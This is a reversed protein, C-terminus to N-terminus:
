GPHPRWSITLNGDVGSDSTSIGDPCFIALKSIPNVVAANGGRWVFKSTAGSSVTVTAVSANTSGLIGDLVAPGTTVTVAENMDVITTTNLQSMGLISRTPTYFVTAFGVIAGSVPTRFVMGNPCFVHADDVPNYQTNNAMTQLFDTGDSDELTYVLSGGGSQALAVGHLVCNGTAIETTDDSALTVVAADYLQIEGVDGM